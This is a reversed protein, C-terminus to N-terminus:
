QFRRSSVPSFLFLRSFVYKWSYRYSAQKTRVSDGFMEPFRRSNVPLIYDRFGTSWNGRLLVVIRRLGIGQADRTKKPHLVESILDQGPVPRFVCPEQNQCLFKDNQSKPGIGQPDKKNKQMCSRPSRIKALSRASFVTRLKTDFCVYM